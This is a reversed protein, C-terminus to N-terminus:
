STHYISTGIFTFDIQVAMMFLLTAHPPPFTLSSIIVHIIPM